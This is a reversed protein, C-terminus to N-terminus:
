LEEPSREPNYKAFLLHDNVIEPQPKKPSFISWCSPTKATVPLTPSYREPLIEDFSISTRRKVEKEEEPQSVSSKRSLFSSSNRRM